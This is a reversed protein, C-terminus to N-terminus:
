FMQYSIMLESSLTCAPFVSRRQQREWYRDTVTEWSQEPPTHFLTFQGISVDQWRDGRARGLSPSGAAGVLFLAVM